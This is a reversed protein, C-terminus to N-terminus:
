RVESNAALEVYKVYSMFSSGFSSNRSRQRLPNGSSLASRYGACVALTEASAREELSKLCVSLSFSPHM